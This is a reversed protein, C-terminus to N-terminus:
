VAVCLCSVNALSMECEFGAVICTARVGTSLREGMYPCWLNCKTPQFFFFVWLTPHNLLPDSILQTLSFYSSFANYSLRLSSIFVYPFISVFYISSSVFVDLLYLLGCWSASHTKEFPTCRLIDSMYLNHCKWHSGASSIKYHYEPRSSQSRQM